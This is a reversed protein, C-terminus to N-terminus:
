SWYYKTDSEEVNGKWKKICYTPSMFGMHNIQFFFNDEETLKRDKAHVLIKKWIPATNNIKKLFSAKRILKESYLRNLLSRDTLFRLCRTRQVLSAPVVYLFSFSNHWSFIPYVFLSYIFLVMILLETFNPWVNEFTYRTM